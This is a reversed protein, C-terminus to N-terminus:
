DLESVDNLDTLEDTLISAHSIDKDKKGAKEEEQKAEIFIPQSQQLDALVEEM